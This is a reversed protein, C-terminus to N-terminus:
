FVPILLIAANLETEAVVAVWKQTINLYCTKGAWSAVPLAASVQSKKKRFAAEGILQTKTEKM